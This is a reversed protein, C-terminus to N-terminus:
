LEHKLSMTIMFSLNSNNRLLNSSYYSYVNFFLQLFLSYLFNLILYLFEQCNEIKIYQELCKGTSSKM